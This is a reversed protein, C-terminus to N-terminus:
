VCDILHIFSGMVKGARAGAADRRRGAADNVAFLPNRADEQTVTAYHFEHGRFQTGRAGLPADGALSVQRYGLHLQRAAFSTELPLLGTMDHRIGVADTLATGLVMYGGCEGLIAAGRAAAEQLGRKFVANGALRGAHLEPYGGPLYVADAGPDPAEEALPSFPLIEAGQARWSELLAPYAFAFADDRALAIRQGLPKLAPASDDLPMAHAPRALAQLRELDTVAAVRQAARDLFADLDAHERAQVLGLHREPLALASDRAIAGLVPIDPVHRALADRLTEVHSPGGVRNLILGAIPVDRRHRAFGSVLAAASASQGRVDVILVVPWGTRAALDATSGTGQADIGDFLGMVGECLIVGADSGLAAILRALTAPRMAWPDLNLCPGGTAATHFAPDIYDPGAKASAVRINRHRLARLLALTLITKGAGSSPASLILGKAGGASV